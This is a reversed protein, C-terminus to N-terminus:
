GKRCFYKTLPITIPPTLPYRVSLLPFIHIMRDSRTLHPEIRFAFPNLRMATGDHVQVASIIEIPLILLLRVTLVADPM